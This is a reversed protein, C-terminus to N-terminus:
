TGHGLRAETRDICVSIRHQSIRHREPEAQVGSSQDATYARGQETQLWAEHRAIWEPDTMDVEGTHRRAPIFSHANM